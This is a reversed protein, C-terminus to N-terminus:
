RTESVATRARVFARVHASNASTRLLVGKRGSGAGVIAGGCAVVAVAVSENTRRKRGVIRRKALAAEAAAGAVADAEAAAAAGAGTLFTDFRLSLPAWPAASTAAASACLELDDDDDDDDAGSLASSILSASAPMVSLDVIMPRLGVVGDM